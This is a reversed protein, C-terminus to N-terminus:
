KMSAILWEPLTKEVLRLERESVAKMCRTLQQMRTNFILNVKATEM